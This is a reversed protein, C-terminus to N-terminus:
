FGAEFDLLVSETTEAAAASVASLLITASIMFTQNM